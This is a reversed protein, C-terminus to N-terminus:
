PTQHDQLAPDAATAECGDSEEAPQSFWSEDGAGMACRRKGRMSDIKMEDRQSRKQQQQDFRNKWQLGCLRGGKNKETGTMEMM